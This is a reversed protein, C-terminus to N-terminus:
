FVVGIGNRRIFGNRYKTVSKKAPKKLTPKIEKKIESNRPEISLTDSPGKFTFLGNVMMM